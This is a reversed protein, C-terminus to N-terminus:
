KVYIFSFMRNLSEKHKRYSHFREEPTCFTCFGTSHINEAQVGEYEMQKMICKELNLRGENVIKLGKYLTSNQFLEAIDEGIEYCCGRNHPGIFATIDKGQTGYEKKLKQITKGAIQNLTGKWGSHVAAIIHKKRDYLMVPVCDATVVGVATQRETTIISDGEYIEGDYLRIIDSHTQKLYGVKKLQFWKQLDKMHQMGDTTAINFNLGGVATSFVIKAEGFQEIIFEYGDIKLSEM